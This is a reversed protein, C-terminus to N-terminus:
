MKVSQDIVVPRNETWASEAPAYVAAVAVQSRAKRLGGERGTPSSSAKETTSGFRTPATTAHRVPRMRRDWNRATPSASSAEAERRCRSSRSTAM